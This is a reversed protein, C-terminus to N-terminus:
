TQSQADSAVDGKRRRRITDSAWWYALVFLAGAGLALALPGVRMFRVGLRQSALVLKGDPSSVSVHLPFAGTSEAEVPINVTFGGPPVTVPSMTEGKLFVLKDSSLSIAVDVPQDLANEIRLPILSSQATLTIGATPPISIKSAIARVFRDVELYGADFAPEGAEPSSDPDRALAVSPALDLARTADIVLPSTAGAMSRLGEVALTANTVSPVLSQRGDSSRSRVQSIARGKKPGIALPVKEFLDSVPVVTLFPSQTLMSVFAELGLPDPNWRFPPLLLVGKPTSSDLAITTLTAAVAAPSLRPTKMDLAALAPSIEDLAAYVPLVSGDGIDALVPQTRPPRTKEGFDTSRMLAAGFGADPVRRLSALDFGDLPPLAVETTGSRSTVDELVRRGLEWQRALEAQLAQSSYFPATLFCFPSSLVENKSDRAAAVAYDLTAKSLASDVSSADRASALGALESITSPQFALSLPLDTASGYIKALRALRSMEERSFPADRGTGRDLAPSSSDSASFRKDLSSALPPAALPAVLGVYLRPSPKGYSFEVFTEATAVPVDDRPSSFVAIKLLYVGTNPFTISKEEASAVNAKARFSVPVTVSHEQGNMSSPIALSHRAVRHSTVTEKGELVAHLASPSQIPASLLLDATATDSLFRRDRIKLLADVFVDSGPFVSFSQATIELQVAPASESFASGQVIETFVPSDPTERYLVAPAHARPVREHELKSAAAAPVAGRGVAHALALFIVLVLLGFRKSAPFVRYSPTM